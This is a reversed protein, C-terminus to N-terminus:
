VIIGGERVGDALAKVVGHYQYGGRDFVITQISMKKLKEAIQKGLEGAKAVTVGKASFTCITKGADDNIGQVYLATNSKYVSLRPRVETGHVKARIRIKRHMRKERKTNM